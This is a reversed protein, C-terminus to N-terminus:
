PQDPRDQSPQSTAPKKKHDRMHKIEKKVGQEAVWTAGKTVLSQATIAACGSALLAIICGGIVPPLILRRM